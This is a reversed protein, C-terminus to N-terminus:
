KRVFNYAFSSTFVLVFSASYMAGETEGVAVALTLLAAPISMQVQTLYPVDPFLPKGLSVLMSVIDGVTIPSFPSIERVVQVLHPKFGCSLYRWNCLAVRGSWQAVDGEDVPWAFTDTGASVLRQILTPDVNTWRQLLMSEVAKTKQPHTVWIELSNKKM